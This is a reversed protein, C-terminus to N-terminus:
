TTHRPARFTPDPDHRAQGGRTPGVSVIVRWDGARPMIVTPHPDVVVEHVSLVGSPLSLIGDFLTEGVRRGSEEARVDVVVHGDLDDRTAVILHHPSVLIGTEWEDDNGTPVDASEYDGIDV